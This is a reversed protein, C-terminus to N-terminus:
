KNTEVLIPQQAGHPHSGGRYVKLKTMLQNALKNKPLMGRVAHEILFEPKKSRMRAASVYKEGGQYGSYFMYEKDEDKSGSLKVKESNIVIVFDGADMHPTYLPKNRGRLVNAIKVALRGLAKNEADFLYWKKNAIDEVTALTTKM